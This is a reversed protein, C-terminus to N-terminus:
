RNRNIKPLYLQFDLVKRKYSQEQNHIEKEQVKDKDLLITKRSKPPKKRSSKKERGREKFVAEM